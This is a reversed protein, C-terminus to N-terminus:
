YVEKLFCWLCVYLYNTHTNPFFCELSHSESVLCCQLAGESSLAATLGAGVGMSHTTRMQPSRLLVFDTDSVRYVPGLRTLSKSM